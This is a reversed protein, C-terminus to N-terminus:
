CAPIGHYFCYSKAFLASSHGTFLGLLVVHVIVGGEALPNGAREAHLAIHAIVGLHGGIDGTFHQGIHGPVKNDGFPVGLLKEGVKVGIAAVIGIANGQDLVLFAKAIVRE